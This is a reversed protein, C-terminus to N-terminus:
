YDFHDLDVKFYKGRFYYTDAKSLKLKKWDLEWVIEEVLKGFDKDELFSFMVRKILKIRGKMDPVIEANELFNLVLELEKKFSYPKRTFFRYIKRWFSKPNIYKAVWQFRFRYADDEQFFFAIGDRLDKFWDDLGMRKGVADMARWLEKVAPCLKEPPFMDYKNRKSEEIILPFAVSKMYNMIEENTKGEELLKWAENFIVNKVIHKLRALPGFLVPGRPFGMLPYKEGEIVMGYAGSDLTVLKARAVDGFRWYQVMEPLRFKYLKGFLWRVIKNKKM